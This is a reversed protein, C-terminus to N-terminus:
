CGQSRDRAERLGLAAFLRESWPVALGRARARRVVVGLIEDIESPKGSMLDRQLSSTAGADLADIRRMAREVADEPVSVGEAAAVLAVERMMAQLMARTDASTRVDGIPKGAFAGVAGFPAIFLLKEWLVTDIADSENVDIGAHRMATCAREVTKAQAASARAITLLPRAGIWRVTGPREIWALMHALASVVHEHGLAAALHAAAEVGNQTPLVVTSPTLLSGLSPAIDAVQWAKVAVIVVDVAGLAAPDSSVVRPKVVRTGEPALLTLGTSSLADLGQGRALMRADLGAQLLLASLLGGVGGAGIIAFSPAAALSM